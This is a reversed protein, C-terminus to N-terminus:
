KVIGTILRTFSFHTNNKKIMLYSIYNIRSSKAVKTKVHQTIPKKTRASALNSSSNVRYVKNLRIPSTKFDPNSTDLAATSRHTRLTKTKLRYNKLDSM